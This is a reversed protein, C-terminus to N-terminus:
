MQGINHPLTPRSLSPPPFTPGSRHSAWFKRGSVRRPKVRCGSLGFTCMQPDQGEFVGGFNLSFVGLAFIPPPFPFFYHSIQPPGASDPPPSLWCPWFGFCLNQGFATLVNFCWKPRFATMVRWMPPHANHPLTPLAPSSAAVSQAATDPRIPFQRFAGFRTPRGSVEVFTALLRHTFSTEVARSAANKTM